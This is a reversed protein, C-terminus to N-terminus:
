RRFFFRVVASHCLSIFSCTCVILRIAFLSFFILLVLFLSIVSNKNDPLLDCSSFSQFCDIRKSKQWDSKNACITQQKPSRARLVRSGSSSTTFQLLHALSVAKTTAMSMMQQGIMRNIPSQQNSKNSNQRCKIGFMAPRRSWRWCRKCGMWAMRKNSPVNSRKSKTLALLRKKMTRWVKNTDLVHKTECLFFFSLSLSFTCVNIIKTNKQQDNDNDNDYDKGLSVIVLYSQLPPFFVFLDFWHHLWSMEIYLRRALCHHSFCLSLLVLSHVFWQRLFLFCFACSIQRDPLCCWSWRVPLIWNFSIILSSCKKNNLKSTRSHTKRHARSERRRRRRTEKGRKSEQESACVSRRECEISIVICLLWKSLLVFLYYHQIAEALSSTLIIHFYITAVVM